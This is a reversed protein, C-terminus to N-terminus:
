ATLILLLPACATTVPLQPLSRVRSTFAARSTPYSRCSRCRRRCRAPRARRWRRRRSRCPPPRPRSAAWHAPRLALREVLGEAHAKGLRLVVIHVHAHLEHDLRQGLRNFRRAGHHGRGDCALHFLGLTCSAPRLPPVMRAASWWNWCGSATPRISFCPVGPTVTQHPLSPSRAEAHHLVDRSRLGLLWVAALHLAELSFKNKGPHITLLLIGPYFKPMVEENGEGIAGGTAGQSLGPRGAEM